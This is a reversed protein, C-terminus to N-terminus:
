LSNDVLTREDSTLGYLDYVMRDIQDDVSAAQRELLVKENPLKTQQIKENLTLIEDVLGVLRESRIVEARDGFEIRRIPIAELYVGKMHIDLYKHQFLYNVLKSNLIGLIYKTDYKNNM